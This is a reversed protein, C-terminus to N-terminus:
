KNRKLFYKGILFWDRAKRFETPTVKPFNKSGKMIM